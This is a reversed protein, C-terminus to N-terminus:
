RNSPAEGNANRVGPFVGEGPGEQPSPGGEPIAPEPSVAARNAKYRAQWARLSNNFLMPGVNKAAPRTM